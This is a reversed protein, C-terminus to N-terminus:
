VEVYLPLNNITLLSGDVYVPEFQTDFMYGWLKREAAETPSPAYVAIVDRIDSYFVNGGPININPDAIIDDVTVGAKLTEPDDFFFQQWYPDLLAYSTILLGITDIMEGTVPDRTIKLLLGTTPLRNRRRGLGLGLGLM